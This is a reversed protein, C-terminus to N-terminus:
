RMTCRLSVPLLNVGVIKSNDLEHWEDSAAVAAKERKAGAACEMILVSSLIGFQFDSEPISFSHLSKQDGSSKPRGIHSIADRIQPKRLFIAWRPNENGTSL